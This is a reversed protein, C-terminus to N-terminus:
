WHPMLFPIYPAPPGAFFPLGSKSIVAPTTRIVLCATAIQREAKVLSADSLIHLHAPPAFVVFCSKPIVAPKTRVFHGATAIQGETKVLSVTLILFRIFIIWMKPNSCTTRVFLGATAIQGEAGVGNGAPNRKQKTMHTICEHVHLKRLSRASRM